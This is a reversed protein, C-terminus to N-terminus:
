DGLQHLNAFFVLVFGSVIALQNVSVMRGRLRAPTVEAIYMPVALAAMGIGLGGLLRFAIFAGLTRPLATGVASVAFLVGSLVLLKKRGLRDSIVGALVAGVACGLIACSMAWGETTPDLQFRATLFGIAGNIVGTDYGFLLGGLTAVLCILTVYGTSGQTPDAGKM